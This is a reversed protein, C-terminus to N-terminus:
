RDAFARTLDSVLQKRERDTLFGGVEIGQGHSRIVLRSPYWDFHPPELVAQAWGRPFERRREVRRRGAEVRVTNADITILERRAARLACVYFAAGLAALELGAFPLVLWLGLAAFTIGIAAGVACIGGYVALLARNSLSSNPSLVFRHSAGGDDHFEAVM